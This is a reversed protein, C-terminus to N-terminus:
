LKYEILLLEVDDADVQYSDEAFMDVEFSGAEDTLTLTGEADDDTIAWSFSIMNDDGAQLNLRWTVETLTSSVIDTFLKDGEREFWVHFAGEPPAPPAEVSSAENQQGFQLEIQAGSNSAMLDVLYVSSEEAVEVFNATLSTNNTINFTLPNENSELDGTWSDFVWGENSTAEVSVQSGEDFTGSSPAVTGAGSPTVSTSLSFTPTPQPPPDGGNGDSDTTGCSITLLTIFLLLMINKLGQM